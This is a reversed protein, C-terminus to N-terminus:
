GILDWSMATGMKVEKAVRRGLLAPLYKPPLGYGPRIARLNDQTLVEGAQLDKVIYLSRRFVLSKKEKETPGYSVYGLSQWARESEVVLQAM